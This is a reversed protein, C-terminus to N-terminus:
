KRDEKLAALRDAAHALWKEDGKFSTFGGPFHVFMQGVEGEIQLVGDVAAADEETWTAFDWVGNEPDAYTRLLQDLSEMLYQVAEAHQGPAAAALRVATHVAAAAAGIMPGAAHGHPLLTSIPM